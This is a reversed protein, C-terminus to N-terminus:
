FEAKNSTCVTIKIKDPVKSHQFWLICPQATPFRHMSIFINALVSLFNSNHSITVIEWHRSSRYSPRVLFPSFFGQAVVYFIVTNSSIVQYQYQLLIRPIVTPLTPYFMLVIATKIYDDSNHVKIVLIPSPFYKFFQYTKFMIDNYQM